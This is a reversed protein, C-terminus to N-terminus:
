VSLMSSVHFKRVETNTLNRFDKMRPVIDLFSDLQSVNLGPEPFELKSSIAHSYASSTTALRDIVVKVGTTRRHHGLPETSAMHCIIPSTFVSEATLGHCMNSLNGAEHRLARLLGQTAESNINTIHELNKVTANKDRVCTLSFLKFFEVM